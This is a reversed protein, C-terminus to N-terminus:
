LSEYILPAFCRECEGVLYPAGEFPNLNHLLAHRISMEIVLGCSRLSVALLMSLLSCM